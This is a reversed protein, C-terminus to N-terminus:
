STRSSTCATASASAAIGAPETAAYVNFPEAGFALRIRRRAEDTLVESSCMVARPSIRLRGALQEEALVRGMSAYCILNEPRWENLGAVIEEIPSTADFRRM